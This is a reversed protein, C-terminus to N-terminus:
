QRNDKIFQTQASLLGFWESMARLKLISVGFAISIAVSRELSLPPLGLTRGSGGAM